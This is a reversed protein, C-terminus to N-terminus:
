IRVSFLGIVNLKATGGAAGDDAPDLSAADDDAPEFSAAGSPPL